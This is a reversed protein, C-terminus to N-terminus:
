TTKLSLQKQIGYFHSTKEHDLNHAWDPMLAVFREVGSSKVGDEYPQGMMDFADRFDAADDWAEDGAIRVFRDFVTDWFAFRYGTGQGRLDIFRIM